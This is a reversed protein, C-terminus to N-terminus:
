FEAIRGAYSLLALIRSLVTADIGPVAGTEIETDSAGPNANIYTAVAEINGNNRQTTIFTLVQNQTVGFQTALTALDDRHIYRAM